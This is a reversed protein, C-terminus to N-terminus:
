ISTTILFSFIKKHNEFLGRCIDTFIVQTIKEQLLKLRYEFDAVKETQELSTRFLKKFYVLSWQYMPDINSMDSIVFYLM